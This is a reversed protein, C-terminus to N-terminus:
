KCNCLLASISLGALRYVTITTCKVYGKGCNEKAATLQPGVVSRCKLEVVTEKLYYFSIFLCFQGDM